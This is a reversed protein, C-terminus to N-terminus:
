AEGGVSFTRKSKGVVFRAARDAPWDAETVLPGEYGTDAHRVAGQALLRRGESMSIGLQHAMEHPLYIKRKSM